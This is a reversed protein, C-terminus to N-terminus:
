FIARGCFSRNHITSSLELPFISGCHSTEGVCGHVIQSWGLLITQNPKTLILGRRDTRVMAFGHSSPSLNSYALISTARTASGSKLLHWGSKHKIGASRFRNRNRESYSSSIGIGIGAFCPWTSDIGIGIGNLWFLNIGVRSKRSRFRNRKSEM